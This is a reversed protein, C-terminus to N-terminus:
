AAHYCSGTVSLMGGEGSLPLHGMERARKESIWHRALEDDTWVTGDPGRRRAWAQRSQILIIWTGPMIPTIESRINGFVGNGCALSGGRRGPHRNARGTRATGSRSRRSPAPRRRSRAGACPPATAATATGNRSAAARPPASYTYACRPLSDRSQPRSGLLFAAGAGQDHESRGPAAAPRVGPESGYTAEPARHHRADGKRHNTRGRADSPVTTAGPPPISRRCPPELDLLCLRSV